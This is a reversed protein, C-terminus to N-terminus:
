FHGAENLQEGLISVVLQPDASSLCVVVALIYKKNLPYLVFLLYIIEETKKVDESTITALVESGVVVLSIFRIMENLVGGLLRRIEEGGKQIM